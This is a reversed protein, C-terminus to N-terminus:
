PSSSSGAPNWAFGISGPGSEDLLSAAPVWREVADATVGPALYSDVRM